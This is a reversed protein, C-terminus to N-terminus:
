LEDKTNLRSDVDYWAKVRHGKRESEPPLKMYDGYRIQLWDAAQKMGKVKIGEFEYDVIENMYEKPFAEALGIGVTNGGIRRNNKIDFMSCAKAYKKSIKQLDMKKLLSMFPKLMVSKIGHRVYIEDNEMEAKVSYFRRFIKHLMFFYVKAGKDPIADLPFIDIWLKKTLSSTGEVINISNNIYKLHPWTENDLESGVFEFGQERDKNNKIIGILKNYDSRLVGLDIDDDWPIFGKHRVAGLLTGAIITYKIDYRDLYEIVSKLLALLEQKIQRDNM